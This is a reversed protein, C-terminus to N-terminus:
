NLSASSQLRDVGGLFLSSVSLHQGQSCLMEVLESLSPPSALPLVQFHGGSGVQLVGMEGALGLVEAGNRTAMTLLQEPALRFGYCRRAAALEEWLSLSDSSALSDTGLALKVGASQYDALPPLGVGLRENSRPCLVVAVRREAMQRCDDLTVQVGHVLLNWSRLGGCRRLYEVPSCHPSHFRHRDWGVAPYFRRVLDGDGHRILQWEAASEALHTMAPWHRRGILEFLTELAEASLTYPSHPAIGPQLSGFSEKELCAVVEALAKRWAYQDVGLVELHCRGYLPSRRYRPVLAPASLIDGVAGTGLRLCWELGDALSADLEPLSLGKKVAILYLLWDIFDAGCPPPRLEGSWRPFHSLELHTHANAMPPLLVAEGFDVIAGSHGSSLAARQGLAAIRGNVVLLAGDEVPPRHIPLLYRALYLTPPQNM